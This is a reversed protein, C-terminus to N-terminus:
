TIEVRLLENGVYVFDGHSLTPEEAGPQSPQDSSASQASAQM